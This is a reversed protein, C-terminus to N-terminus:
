MELPSVSLVAQPHRYTPMWSLVLRGFVAEFEVCGLGYRAYSVIAM